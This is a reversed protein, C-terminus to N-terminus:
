GTVGRPRLRLWPRALIRGCVAGVALATVVDSGEPPMVPSGATLTVLAALVLASGAQGQTLVVRRRDSRSGVAVIALFVAAVLLWIAGIITVLQLSM